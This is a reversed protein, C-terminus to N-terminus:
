SARGGWAETEKVTFHARRQYLGELIMTLVRLPAMPPFVEQLPCAM